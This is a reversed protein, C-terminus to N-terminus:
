QQVGLTLTQSQTTGGGTATVTVTTNTTHPSAVCGGLSLGLVLLVASLFVYKRRRFSGAGLLLIAGAFAMGGFVAGRRSAQAGGPGITLTSTAPSQRPTVSAPSFRCAEGAPLGSCAFSVTSNFGNQPTVTLTLVASGGGRIVASNASIAFTFASPPLDITYTAKAVASAMYGPASEIAIASITESTSVTIAGSYLLSSANPTSGDTTYYIAASSDADSLTVSQVSTYTGGALTFVPPPTQIASIALALSNSSSGAYTTDGSYVARVTVNASSLDNLPISATATGSLAATAVTANNATFTVTGTPPTSGSTGFVAASLVPSGTSGTGVAIDALSTTTAILSALTTVPQLASSSLANTSDGSYVALLNDTGAPLTATIQANGGSDIAAAGLFIGNSLFSVTGAPTSPATVHAALAIPSSSRLTGKPVTLATSTAAKSNFQSDLWAIRLRLWNVFYSVEGDYSGMAESNPWVMLGLMPWRTFNNAQSQELSGAQTAISNLWNDFVGSDKLKNWQSTVDAKFRPDTFWQKYWPSQLPMWQVTPNVIAAYNTNGSSVDFDWVPGMYLLPNDKDKYLYDSSYFRGGDVNGMLDNVIYFNVASAEDFYARWGQTPDTYNSAFLANEASDVYSSIYATQEPVEPDPTFDPDSLGIPINKPTTFVYAEDKHQDIEMLYGGSVDDTTDSESLESINVRHSDVKIEEILLYNGEYQGNVYLEVFIGHPAWPMLASTGSPSPSGAPSSLYGNGMSIANALSSAAWDRLLSKDDYNALLIYTKSKDCAAKGSGTVYPCSVGMTNLLDLSTNLKVHYPLKPMNVTSNGHLHFTATNDSDSSNPLYSTQGDASTITITGSVNTTKSNIPTGGTDINVTPLNISTGSPAFSSNSISITIQLPATTETSGAAAVVTATSSWTTKKLAEAPSFGEQGASVSANLILNGSAGPTLTVPTVSVGSPLGTITVVVPGSYSSSELTVAVSINQQGPFITLTSPSATVAPAQAFASCVAGFITSSVCCLLFCRLQSMM